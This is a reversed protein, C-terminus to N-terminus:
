DQEADQRWETYLQDAAFVAEFEEYGNAWAERIAEVFLDPRDRDAELM